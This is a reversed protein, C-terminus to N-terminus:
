LSGSITTIHSDSFSTSRSTSLSNAGSYSDSISASYNVGSAYGAVVQAQVRAVGDLAQLAAKIKEVALLADSKYKDIAADVGAKSAEVKLGESKVQADVEATAGRVDADYKAVKARLVDASAKIQEVQASVKASYAQVDAKYEELPLEKKVKIEAGLYGLKTDSLVKYANVRAAYADAMSGQIQAKIGEGSLAAKYGEYELNKAKIREAYASIDAEYKKVRVADQELIASFADVRTKYTSYLTEVASVETAYIKVAQENLDGILKQGELQAKYVEVKAIEGQIQKEYVDALTSYVSVRAKYQEVYMQYVSIAADVAYKAAQLSRNNIQNANDILKGEWDVAQTFAFQFNQQELKAQEVAINRSEAIVEDQAKQEAQLVSDYLDGTPQDWGAASSMRKVQAIADRTVANVRERGRDWIQQEIVPNLGTQRINNVYDILKANLQQLLSSNYVSETYSFDAGSFSELDPPIEGKFSPIELKLKDPIVIAQLVPKSPDQVEPEPPVENGRDPLNLPDPGPIYENTVGPVDRFSLSSGVYEPPPEPSGISVSSSKLSPDSATITGQTSYSLGSSSPTKYSVTGPQDVSFDTSKPNLLPSLLNNIASDIDGVIKILEENAMGAKDVQTEIGSSVAEAAGSTLLGESRTLSM